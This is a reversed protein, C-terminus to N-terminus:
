MNSIHWETMEIVKNCWYCKGEQCAKFDRCGGRYGYIHGLEHFEISCMFAMFLRLDRDVSLDAEIFLDTIKNLFVSIRDLNPYWRGMTKNGKLSYTFEIM